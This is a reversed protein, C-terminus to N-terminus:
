RVEATWGRAAMCRVFFAMPDEYRGYRVQRADRECPYMDTQKDQMSAGSKYFDIQACAGLALITALALLKRSRRYRPSRHRKM